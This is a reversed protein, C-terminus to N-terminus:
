NLTKSLNLIYCIDSCYDIATNPKERPKVEEGRIRLSYLDDCEKCFKATKEELINVM